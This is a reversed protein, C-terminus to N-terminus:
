STTTEHTRQYMKIFTVKQVASKVAEEVLIPPLVALVLPAPHVMAEDSHDLLGRNATLTRTNM